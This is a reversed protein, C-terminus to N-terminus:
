ENILGLRSLCEYSSTKTNYYYNALTIIVVYYRLEVASVSILNSDM